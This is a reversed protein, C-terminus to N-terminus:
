QQRVYRDLLEDRTLADLEARDGGQAVGYEVLDGKSSRSNVKALHEGGEAPAPETESSSTKVPAPVAAKPEDLAKILKSDLLHKVRDAPVGAPLIAGEYFTALMQGSASAVPIHTVCPAVVQYQTM